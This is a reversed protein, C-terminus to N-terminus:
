EAIRGENQDVFITSGNTGHQHTQVSIEIQPTFCSDTPLDESPTSCGNVFDSGKLCNIFQVFKIVNAGNAKV